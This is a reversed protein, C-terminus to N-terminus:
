LFLFGFFGHQSTPHFIKVLVPSETKDLIDITRFFIKEINGADLVRNNFSIHNSKLQFATTFAHIGHSDSKCTLPYGM